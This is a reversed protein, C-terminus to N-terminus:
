EFEIKGEFPKKILASHLYLDVKFTCFSCHWPLDLLCRSIWKKLSAIVVTIFNLVVTNTCSIKESVLKLRLYPSLLM